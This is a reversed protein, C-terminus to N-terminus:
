QHFESVIDFKCNPLNSSIRTQSKWYYLFSFLMSHSFLGPGLGAEDLIHAM